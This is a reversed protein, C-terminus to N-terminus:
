GDLTGGSGSFGTMSRLKLRELLSAAPRMYGEAFFSSTRLERPRLLCLLLM